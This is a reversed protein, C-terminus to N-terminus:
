YLGRQTSGFYGQGQNPNNPHGYGMFVPHQHNPQNQHIYQQPHFDQPSRGPASQQYSPRLHPYKKWCDQVTHKGSGCHKCRRGNRRPDSKSRDRGNGNRGNRGGTKNPYSDNTNNNNKLFRKHLGPREGRTDSFDRPYKLCSKLEPTEANFVAQKPPTSNSPASEKALLYLNLLDFVKVFDMDEFKRVIVEKMLFDHMFDHYKPISKTQTLVLAVMMQEEMGYAGNEFRQFDKWMKYKTQMFALIDQNDKCPTMASETLTMMSQVSNEECTDKFRTWFLVPDAKEFVEPGIRLWARSNVVIHRAVAGFAKIRKTEMAVVADLYARKDKMNKMNYMKRPVTKKETLWTHDLGCQALSNFMAQKTKPFQEIVDTIGDFMEQVPGLGANTAGYSITDTTTAISSM